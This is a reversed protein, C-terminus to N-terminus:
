DALRPLRLANRIVGDDGEQQVLMCRGEAGVLDETDFGDGEHPIGFVELFRQVQLKAFQVNETKPGPLVIWHNFPQVDDVGEIRITTKVMPAGKQSTLGDEMKTIRLDYEGEPAAEPEKADLAVKIFAM